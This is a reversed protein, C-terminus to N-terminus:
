LFCLSKFWILRAHVSVRRRQEGKHKWKQAMEACCRPEWLFVWEPLHLKEKSTRPYIWWKDKESNDKVKERNQEGTFPVYTFFTSNFCVGFAGPTLIRNNNNYSTCLRQHRYQMSTQLRTIWLQVSCYTQKCNDLASAWGTWWREGTWSCRYWTQGWLSTSRWLFHQRRPWGTPHPPVPTHGSSRWTLREVSYKADEDSFVYFRKTKQCKTILLHTYVTM